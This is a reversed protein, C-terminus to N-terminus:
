GLMYNGGVGDISSHWTVRCCEERDEVDGVEAMLLVGLGGGAGTAGGVPSLIETNRGPGDKWLGLHNTGEGFAAWSFLVLEGCHNGDCGCANKLRRARHLGQREVSTAGLTLRKLRSERAAEPTESVTGDSRVRM